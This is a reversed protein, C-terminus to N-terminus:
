GDEVHRGVWGAAVPLSPRFTFLPMTWVCLFMGFHVHFLPQGNEILLHAKACNNNRRQRRSPFFFFFLSFSGSSSRNMATVGVGVCPRISLRGSFLGLGTLRRLQKKKKKKKRVLFFSLSLSFDRDLHFRLFPNNEAGKTISRFVLSFFFLLSRSDM